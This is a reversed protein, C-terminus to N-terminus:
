PALQQKLQVAKHYTPDQRLVADCEALAEKIKRQHFLAYAMNFRADVNAPNGALLTRYAEIARDFRSMMFWCNGLNNLAPVLGPSLRLAEEFAAVARPFNNEKAYANGLEIFYQPDRDRAARMDELRASGAGGGTKLFDPEAEVRYSALLPRLSGAAILIWFAACTFFVTRGPRATRTGGTGAWLVGTLLWFPVATSALRFNRDVAIHVLIAALAGLIGAALPALEAPSAQRVSAALKAQRVDAALKAQRVDFDSAVKVGMALRDGARGQVYAQRLVVALLWLFIGLGVVGSEMAVHLYECHPHEAFTNDAKMKEAFSPPAFPPYEAAFSGLGWGAVPKVAIMRLTGKWLQLRDTRRGLQERPALVLLIVAMLVVASAGPSAFAPLPFRAFLRRTDPWNGARPAFRGRGVFLFAAVGAFAGLWAGRSYTMYLVAASAAAAGGWIGPHWGATGAAMAGLFLPILLATWTGLFSPNGFTSFPRERSYWKVFEAVPEIGLKQSIAYAAVPVFAFLILVAVRSRDSRRLVLAASGAISLFAFQRLLEDSAAVSRSIVYSATAVALWAGLPGLVGPLAGRRSYAAVAAALAGLALPQAALLKMDRSQLALLLPILLALTFLILRALKV